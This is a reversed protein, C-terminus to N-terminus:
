VKSVNTNDDTNNVTGLYSRVHARIVQMCERVADNVETIAATFLMTRAESYARIYSVCLDQYESLKAANDALAKKKDENSVDITAKDGKVEAGAATAAAKVGAAAADTEANKNNAVNKKVDAAGSKSTQKIDSAAKTAAKTDINQGNGTNANVTNTGNTSGSSNNNNIEAENLIKNYVISYYNYSENKNIEKNAKNAAQLMNNMSTQNESAKDRTAQDSSNARSSMTEIEKKMKNFSDTYAKENKNMVETYTNYYKTLGDILDSSGYAFTYMEKMLDTLEDSTYEVLDDGGFFYTKLEGAMDDADAKVGEIGAAKLAETYQATKFTNMDTDKETESKGIASQAGGTMGTVKNYDQIPVLITTAKKLLNKVREIGGGTGFHKKMKATIQVKKGLIVNKYQDLYEKNSNILNNFSEAFKQFVEAFFSKLKAFIAKVKDGFSAENLVTMEQFVKKRNPNSLIICENIYREMENQQNIMNETFYFYDVMDTFRDM